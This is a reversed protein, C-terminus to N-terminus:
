SLNSINLQLEQKVFNPTSSEKLLKKMPKLARKEQIKALIQILESQIIAEKETELSKIFASKIVELSSFKSLVDVAALCVNTNDDFFLRDIIAQIIKTDKLTFEQTNDIALVRKSASKNEIMALVSNKKETQQHTATQTSM